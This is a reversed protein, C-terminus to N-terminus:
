MRVCEVVVSAFSHICGIQKVHPEYHAFVVEVLSYVWFFSYMLGGSRGVLRAIVTKVTSSFSVCHSHARSLVGFTERAGPDTM